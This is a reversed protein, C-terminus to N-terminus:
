CFKPGPCIPMASFRIYKEATGSMIGAEAIIAEESASLTHAKRRQINDIFHRYEALGPEERFFRDITEGPIALIEPEMFATNKDFDTSVQTMEQEMGLPQALRKDEDSLMSAYSILRGLDKAVVSFYELAEWLTQSSEGLRGKYSSFKTIKESLEVKSKRWSGTSPYLDTLNWKYQEPIQNRSKEETQAPLSQVILVAACLLIM